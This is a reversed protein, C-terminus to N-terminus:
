KADEQTLMTSSEPGEPGAQDQQAHHEILDFTDGDVDGFEALFQL